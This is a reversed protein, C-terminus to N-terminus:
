QSELLSHSHPSSNKPLEVRFGRGGQRPNRFRKAPKVAEDRAEMGRSHREPTTKFEQPRAIDGSGADRCLTLTDGELKYIGPSVEEEDQGKFIMDLIRPDRTPDIKLKVRLNEKGQYTM